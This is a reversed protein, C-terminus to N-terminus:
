GADPLHQKAEEYGAPTPAPVAAYVLDLVGMAMPDASVLDLHIPPEGEEFLKFGTRAAIPHVMLHLRDVLGAAFLQRTVSISGPVVIGEGPEEKLATVAEDRGPGPRPQLLPLAM